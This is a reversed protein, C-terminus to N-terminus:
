IFNGENGVVGVSGRWGCRVDEDQRAGRSASGRPLPSLVPNSYELEASARNSSAGSGNQVLLLSNTSSGKKTYETFSVRKSNAGQPGPREDDDEAVQSPLPPPPGRPLAHSLHPQSQTRASMHPRKLAYSTQPRYIPDNPSMPFADPNHEITARRPTRPSEPRESRGTIFELARQTAPPILTQRRSRVPGQEYYYEDDDSDEESEEEDEDSDEEDSSSNERWATMQRGRTERDAREEAERKRRREEEERMLADFRALSSLKEEGPVSRESGPICRMQFARDLITERTASSNTSISAHRRDPRDVTSHPSSVSVSRAQAGSGSSDGRAQEDGGSEAPSPLDAPIDCPLMTTYNQAPLSRHPVNPHHAGTPSSVDSRKSRLSPSQSNHSISPERDRSYTARYTNLVREDKSRGSFPNTFTPSAPSDLSEPSMPPRRSLIFQRWEHLSCHHDDPPTRFWLTTTTSEKTSILGAARSSRRKKEKDSITIVLTPLVPGQKRHSVLQVQCDSICSVPYQQSPEQDDQAGARTNTSGVSPSITRLLPCSRVESKYISIAYEGAQM